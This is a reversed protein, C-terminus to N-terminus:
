RVRYLKQDLSSPLIPPLEIAQQSENHSSTNIIDRDPAIENGVREVHSIEVNIYESMHCNKKYQLHSHM